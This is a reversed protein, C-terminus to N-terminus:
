SLRWRVHWRQRYWCHYVLFQWFSTPASKTVLPRSTSSTGHNSRLSFFLHHYWEGGGLTEFYSELGLLLDTRAPRRIATPGESFSSGLMTSFPILHYGDNTEKYSSTLSPLAKWKRLITTGPREFRRTFICALDKVFHFSSGNLSPQNKVKGVLQVLQVWQSAEILTKKKLAWDSIEM